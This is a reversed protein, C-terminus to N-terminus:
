SFPALRLLECHPSRTQKPATRLAHKARTMTRPAAPQPLLLVVVVVVVVVLLVLARAEVVLV